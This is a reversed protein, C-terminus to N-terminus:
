VGLYHWFWAILSGGLEGTMPIAWAWAVAGVLNVAQFRWFGMGSLGAWLFVVARLPGVFHGAPVALVGWRAFASQASQALAPQDRLPWMQLIRPGFRWGLWWSFSSGLMAGVVAGIWIPLLPFAGTSAAAGVAMLLATSPILVSLVATTEAAALAAAIFPALSAHATMVQVLQDV